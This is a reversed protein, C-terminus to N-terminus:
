KIAILQKILVNIKKEDVVLEVIKRENDIKNIIGRTGAHKGSYVMAIEKEKLPICKEIKKDRLSILVSDNVNCKLDSIFNRGDNLNLQVKKGGLIKKDSIKAIKYNAETEKIEKLEFKGKESLDVRYYKKFPLVTITDFLLTNYKDDKVLKNNVLINKEHIVKKMERRNQVIKLIDRAIILLPLGSRTNSLPRVVYATGKRKIPWRKPTKQRKLHM